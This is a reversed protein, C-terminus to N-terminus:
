RNHSHKSKSLVDWIQDATEGDIEPVTAGLSIQKLTEGLTKATPIKFLSLLDNVEVRNSSITSKPTLGELLNDFRKYATEKIKEAYNGTLDNLNYKFPYKLKKKIIYVNKQKDYEYTATVGPIQQIGSIYEELSMDPSPHFYFEKELNKKYRVLSMLPNNKKPDIERDIKDMMESHEAETVEEERLLKALGPNTNTEGCLTAILDNTSEGGTMYRCLLDRDELIKQEDSPKVYKEGNLTTMSSKVGLLHDFFEFYEDPTLKNLSIRGLLRYYDDYANRESAETKVEEYPVAKKSTGAVQSHSDLTLDKNTPLSKIYDSYARVSPDASPSQRFPAAESASPQRIYYKQAPRIDRSLYTRMFKEAVFESPKFRGVNEEKVKYDKIFDYEDNKDNIFTEAEILAPDKNMLEDVREKQSKELFGAKRLQAEKYAIFAEKHQAIRM